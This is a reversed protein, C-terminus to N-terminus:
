TGRKTTRNSLKKPEKLEGPGILQMAINKDESSVGYKLALSWAQVMLRSRKEVQSYINLKANLDEPDVKGDDFNQLLDRLENIETILLNM